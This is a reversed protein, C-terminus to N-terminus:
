ITFPELETRMGNATKSVRYRGPKKAAKRAAQESDYQHKTKSWCGIRADWVDLNCYGDQGIARREYAKM